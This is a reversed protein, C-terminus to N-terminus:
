FSKSKIQNKIVCNSKAPTPSQVYLECCLMEHFLNFLCFFKLNQLGIGGWGFRINPFQLLIQSRWTLELVFIDSGLIRLNIFNAPSLKKLWDRNAGLLCAIKSVLFRSFHSLKGSYEVRWPSSRNSIPASKNWKIIICRTWFFQNSKRVITCPGKFGRDIENTGLLRNQDMIHVLHPRILIQM